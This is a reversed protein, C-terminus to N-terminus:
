RNPFEKNKSILRQMAQQLFELDSPSPLTSPRESSSATRTRESPRTEECDVLLPRLSPEGNDAENILRQKLNDLEQRRHQRVQESMRHLEGHTRKLADEKEREKRQVELRDREIAEGANYFISERPNNLLNKNKPATVVGAVDLGGSENDKFDASQNSPRRLMRTQPPLVITARPKIPKVPLRSSQEQPRSSALNTTPEEVRREESKSSSEALHVGNYIMQLREQEVEFLLETYDKKMKEKYVRNEYCVSDGCVKEVEDLAKKCMESAYNLHHFLSDRQKQESLRHISLSRFHRRPDSATLEFKRLAQLAKERRKICEMAHEWLEVAGQFNDYHDVHTYKLVLDLKTKPRMKLERLVVEM